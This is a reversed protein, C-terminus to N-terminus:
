NGLNTERSYENISLQLRYQEHTLRTLISLLLCTQLDRVLILCRSCTCSDDFSMSLFLLCYRTVVSDITM